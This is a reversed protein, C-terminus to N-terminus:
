NELGEWRKFLSHEIELADLIKGVVHDILQNITDPKHYFAPSAPLIIAGARALTLMNRLHISNLPTERTVMVLPRREKLCVDAARAILNDSIGNAVTALTKTSCPVIVMGEVQFSGSAIPAALDDHAYSATALKVLKKNTIGTELRLNIEAARTVTLYAKIHKEKLIQLLRVGYIAGSAGTIAVIISKM